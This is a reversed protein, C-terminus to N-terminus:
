VRVNWSGAGRKNAKATPRGGPSESAENKSNESKNVRSFEVDLATPGLMNLAGFAYVRCDLAENRKRTQHWERKEYGRVFRTRCEESCFQKFYEDDYHNPFHCFGDGEGIRSMAVIHAKATDTGVTVVRVGHRNRSSARSVVPRGMIPNGRIAFVRRMTRPACFKYVESTFHGGSDIFTCAVDLRRKLLLWSDLNKWIEGRAPNGHFTVYEISWSTENKGWGVLECELRSDQVDVGCTLILVGKPVLEDYPERRAALIEWDIREGAEATPMGSIETTFGAIDWTQKSQLFKV